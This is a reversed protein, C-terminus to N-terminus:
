LVDNLDDPIQHYESGLGVRHDGPNLWSFVTWLVAVVGASIIGKLLEIDISWIDVGAAFFVSIAAIAFARGLIGLMKKHEEKM